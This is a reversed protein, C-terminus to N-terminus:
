EKWDVEGTGNALARIYIKRIAGEPETARKLPSKATFTPSQFEQVSSNNKETQEVGDNRNSTRSSSSM